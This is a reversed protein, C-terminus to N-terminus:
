ATGGRKAKTSLLWPTLQMRQRLLSISLIVVQVELRVRILLQEYVDGKLLTRLRDEAPLTRACGSRVQLHESHVHWATAWTSRYHLIMCAQLRQKHVKEVWIARLNRASIPKGYVRRVFRLM